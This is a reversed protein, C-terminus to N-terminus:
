AIRLDLAAKVLARWNDNVQVSDSWNRTKSGIEKLNMRINKRINIIVNVLEM